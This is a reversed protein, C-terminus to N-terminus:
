RYTSKALNPSLFIHFNFSFYYGEIIKAVQSFKPYFRVNKLKQFLSKKEVNNFKFFSEIKALEYFLEGNPLVEGWLFFVQMPKIPIVNGVSKLVLLHGWQNV